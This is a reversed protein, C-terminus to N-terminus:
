GSMCLLSKVYIVQPHLYIEALQMGFGCAIM